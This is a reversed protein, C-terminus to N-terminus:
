AGSASSAARTDHDQADGLRLCEQLGARVLRTGIGQRQLDPSVAMPGLGLARAAPGHSEIFVPTFLIHGVIKTGEVAVLSIVVHQAARAADVIRSEEPQGFAQDNVQRIAAEDGPQERRVEIMVRCLSVEESGM